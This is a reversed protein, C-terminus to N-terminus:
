LNNKINSKIQEFREETVCYGCEPCKYGAGTADMQHECGSEPCKDEFFNDWIM